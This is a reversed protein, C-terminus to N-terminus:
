QPLFHTIEQYVTEEEECYGAYHGTRLIRFCLRCVASATAGTGGYLSFLPTGVCACEDWSAPGTRGHHVYPYLAQLRVMGTATSGEYDLLNGPPPLLSSCVLVCGPLFVSIRVLFWRNDGLCCGSGFSDVDM